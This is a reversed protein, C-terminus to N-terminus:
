NVIGGGGGVAGDRTFIIIMSLIGVVVALYPLKTMIFYIGTQFLSATALNTQASVEVYANSLVIAVIVSIILTLVFIPVMVKPYQQAMMAQVILGLLLGAFLIYWLTNITVTSTTITTDLSANIEATTGIKDKMETAVENGIFGVILLFFAFTAILVIFILGAVPNGKKSIM